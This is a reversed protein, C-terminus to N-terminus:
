YGNWGDKKYKKAICLWNNINCVRRVGDVILDKMTDMLAAQGILPEGSELAYKQANTHLLGDIIFEYIEWVVGLSLAFCFAFLAVFVPSLSVTIAESQNLLSVVSLGLAGL